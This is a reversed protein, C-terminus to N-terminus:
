AEVDALNYLGTMADEYAMKSGAIVNHDGSYDSHLPIGVVLNKGAAQCVERTFSADKFARGNSLLHIATSPLCKHIEQLLIILKDGLLAPEGGIVGLVKLEKPASHLLQMNYEFLEDIDDVDCPPQCCMLCCNNCQATVFLANDNSNIDFVNRM